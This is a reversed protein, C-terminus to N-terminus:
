SVRGIWLMQCNRPRTADGRNVVDQTVHGFWGFEFPQLDRGATFRSSSPLSNQHFFEIIRQSTVQDTGDPRLYDRTNGRSFVHWPYDSMQDTAGINPEHAFLLPHPITQIAAYLRSILLNALYWKPLPELPLPPILPEGLADPYIFDFGYKHAAAALATTMQGYLEGTVDPLYFNPTDEILYEAFNEILAGASHPTKITAPDVKFGYPPSTQIDEYVILEDDIRLSYGRLETYRTDAGKQGAALFGDVGGPSTTTPILPDGQGPYIDGALTRAVGPAMFFGPQLAPTVLVSDKDILMYVVHMGL